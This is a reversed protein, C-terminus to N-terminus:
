SGDISVVHGAILAFFIVLAAGLVIGLTARGSYRGDDRATAGVGLAGMGLLGVVGWMLTYGSSTFLQIKLIVLITAVVGLLGLRLSWVARRQAPSRTAPTLNEAM